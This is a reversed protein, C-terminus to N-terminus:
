RKQEYLRAATEYMKCLTKSTLRVGGHVFRYGLFDFGKTIRGIFTKDPHTRLKLRSLTANVWAMAKRIKWRTPALILTDDMFRIYFLGSQEFREDLEHLYFAAMLPSLPCGGPLLKM